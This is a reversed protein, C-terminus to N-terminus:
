SASRRRDIQAARPPTLLGWRRLKSAAAARKEVDLKDLINHVHAKVTPVAIHLRDAIERNGLGADILEAVELERCTLKVREKEEAQAARRSVESMLAASIRPACRLTGELAGLVAQVLDDLSSERCVYGHAGAEACRVVDGPTESVGLAVIRCGHGLEDIARVTEGSGPMGMDVLTVEVERVHLFGVAADASCATGAVDLRGDNTLMEALGERYLRIDSVLLLAAGLHEPSGDGNAATDVRPEKTAEKADKLDAPRESRVKTRPEAMPRDEDIDPVM